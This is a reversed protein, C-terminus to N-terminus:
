QGAAGMKALRQAADTAAPTGPYEAVVRQLAARAPDFRKLEYHCYGTKLLADASKRAGPYDKLVKGFAALAGEYDREVYAIEGLWYQANAALDHQAHAALFAQFGQRAEDYRGEKLLDFAAQYEAEPDAATAAALESARVEVAQLRQDLDLYQARQQEKAGDLAFQLEELGGRLSRVEASLVEVQRALELLAPNDAMRELRELRQELEARSAQALAAQPAGAAALAAVLVILRTPAL